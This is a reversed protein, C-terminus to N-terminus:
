YYDWDWAYEKQNSKYYFVIVHWFIIIIYLYQTKTLKLFDM